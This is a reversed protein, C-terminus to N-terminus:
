VGAEPAAGLKNGRIAHIGTECSCFGTMAARREAPTPAEPDAVAARRGGRGRRAKTVRGRHRSNPAFIGNYDARERNRHSQDSPLFM